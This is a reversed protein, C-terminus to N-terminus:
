CVRIQKGFLAPRTLLIMCIAAFMIMSGLLILSHADAWEAARLGVVRPSTLNFLAFTFAFSVAALKAITSRSHRGEQREELRERHARLFQVFLFAAPLLMVVFHAKWSLPSLIPLLCVFPSAGAIEDRANRAALTALILLLLGLAITLPSTPRSRGVLPESAVLYGVAAPSEFRATAGRLSQNGDYGFDFEQQNMVTREFFTRFAEPASQGFVSFSLVSVVAVMGLCQLAFRVRGRSLHYCVLLLPTLKFSVALAFALASAVPRRKWSLYVHAAVLSAVIANVQGLDFTDLAFRFVVAIAATAVLARYRSRDGDAQAGPEVESAAVDGSDTAATAMRSVLWAGGMLSAASIVFWVYAAVRVPLLTLPALLEALLPPYLYPTWEGISNQYPDRGSMVEKAAYYYVNFDNGYSGPDPSSRGSFYFGAAIVAAALLFWGAARLPEIRNRM